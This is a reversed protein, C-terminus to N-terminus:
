PANGEQPPKTPKPRYGPLPGPMQSVTHDPGTMPPGYPHKARQQTLAQGAALIASWRDALTRLQRLVAALLLSQGVVLAVLAVLLVIIIATSEM